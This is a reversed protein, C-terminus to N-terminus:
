DLRIKDLLTNLVEAEEETLQGLLDYIEPHKEDIQALLDIGVQSISVDVLRKDNACPVRKVLKKQAVRDVLRSADAMKDLLRQRIIRTSIPKRAGRLIRLVNYQQITLDFEKLIAKNRDRVVNTTYLMNILARHLENKFPKKQKIAEEIQM